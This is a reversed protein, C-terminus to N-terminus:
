NLRARPASRASFCTTSSRLQGPLTRKSAGHQEALQEHTLYERKALPKAAQEYVRKELAKSRRGRSCAGDPQGVPHNVARRAQLQANSKEYQGAAPRIRDHSKGVVQRCRVTRTSSSLEPLWEPAPSMPLNGRYWAIGLAVPRQQATAVPAVAGSQRVMSPLLWIEPRRGADPAVWTTSAM